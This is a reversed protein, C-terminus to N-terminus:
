DAQLGFEQVRKVTAELEEPGPLRKHIALFSAQVDQRTAPTKGTDILYAVIDLYSPSRTDLANLSPTPLDNNAKLYHRYQAPLLLSDTETPAHTNRTRHANAVRTGTAHISAFHAAPDPGKTTVATRLKARLQNFPNFM